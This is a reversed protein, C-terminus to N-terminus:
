ENAGGGGKRLVPRRQRKRPQQEPASSCIVAEFAQSYYFKADRIAAPNTSKIELAVAKLDGAFAKSRDQKTISRAVQVFAKPQQHTAPYYAKGSILLRAKWHKHAKLPAAAQALLSLKEQPLGGLPIVIPM